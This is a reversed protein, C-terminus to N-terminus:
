MQGGMGYEGVKPLGSAGDGRGNRRRRSAALGQKPSIPACATETRVPKLRNDVQSLFPRHGTAEWLQTAMQRVSEEGFAAVLRTLRTADYDNWGNPCFLIALDVEERAQRAPIPSLSDTLKRVDVEEIGTESEVNIVEPKRSHDNENERTATPVSTKPRSQSPAGTDCSNAMRQEQSHGNEDELIAQPAPKKPSSVGPIHTSCSGVGWKMSCSALFDLYRDPDVRYHLYGHSLGRRTEELLGLRKLRRRINLQSGPTIGLSAEWSGLRSFIGGTPAVPDGEGTQELFFWGGDKWVISSLYAAQRLFAATALDGLERVMVLPVVIVDHDGKIIEAARSDASSRYSQTHNDPTTMIVPAAGTFRDDSRQRCPTMSYLGM